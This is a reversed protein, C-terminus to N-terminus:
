SSFYHYDSKVFGVPHERLEGAIPGAVACQRLKMEGFANIWNPPQIRIGLAKQQKAVFGFQVLAQEMWVIGMFPLVPHLDFAHGIGGRQALQFVAHRDLSAFRQGADSLDEVGM